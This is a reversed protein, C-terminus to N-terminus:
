PRYNVEHDVKIEALCSKSESVDPDANLEQADTETSRHVRTAGPVLIKYM